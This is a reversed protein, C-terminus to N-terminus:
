HWFISLSAAERQDAICKSPAPANRLIIAIQQAGKGCRTPHRGNTHQGAVRGLRRKRGFSDPLRGWSSADSIGDSCEEPSQRFRHIHHKASVDM